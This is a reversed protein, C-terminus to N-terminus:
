ILFLCGVTNLQHLCFDHALDKRELNEKKGEPSENCNTPPLADHKLSVGIQGSNTSPDRYQVRNHEACM